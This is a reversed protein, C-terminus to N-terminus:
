WVVRCAPAQLHPHITSTLPGLSIFFLFLGPSVHGRPWLFSSLLIGLLCTDGPGPPTIGGGQWQWHWRTTIWGMLLHECHCNPTHNPIGWQWWETCQWGMTMGEGEAWQPEGERLKWKNDCYNFNTDLFNTLLIFIVWAFFSFVYRHGSLCQCCRRPRKKMWNGKGEDGGLWQEIM